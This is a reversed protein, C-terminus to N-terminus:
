YMFNAVFRLKNDLEVMIAQDYYTLWKGQLKAGDCGKVTDGNKCFSALVTYDEKIM